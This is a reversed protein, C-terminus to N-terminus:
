FDDVEYCPLEELKQSFKEFDEESEGSHEKVLPMLQEFKYGQWYLLMRKRECTELTEKVLSFATRGGHLKQLLPIEEGSSLVGLLSADNIGQAQFLGLMVCPVLRSMVITDEEQQPFLREIMDDLCGRLGDVIFPSREDGYRPSKSGESRTETM